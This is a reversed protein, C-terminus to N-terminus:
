DVLETDRAARQESLIEQLEAEVHDPPVTPPRRRSAVLGGAAAGLVLLAAAGLALAYWPTSSPHAAATVVPLSPAAGPTAAPPLPTAALLPAAGYRVVNTRPPGAEVTLASPAVPTVVKTAPASPTPAARPTAARPTVTPTVKPAPRQPAPIPPLGVPLAVRAPLGTIISGNADFAEAYLVYTGQATDAPITFTLTWTGESSIAAQGIAPGNAGWRLTVPTAAAPDFLHGNVTVTSGPPFSPAGKPSPVGGSLDMYAQPTCAYAAAAAALAAAAM